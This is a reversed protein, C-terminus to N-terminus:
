TLCKTILIMSMRVYYPSNVISNQQGMGLDKFFNISIYDNIPNMTQFTSLILLNTNTKLAKQGNM